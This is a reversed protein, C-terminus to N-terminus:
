STDLACFSIVQLTRLARSSSRHVLDSSSINLEVHLDSPLLVSSHYLLMKTFIFYAEMVNVYCEGILFSLKIAADITIM